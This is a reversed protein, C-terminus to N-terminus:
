TGPASRGLRNALRVLGTDRIRHRDRGESSPPHREDFTSVTQQELSAPILDGRRQERWLLRRHNRHRWHRREDRHQNRLCRRLRWGHHLERRDHRRRGNWQRGHRWRQAHDDRRVPHRWRDVYGRDRPHEHWEHRRVRGHRAPRQMGPLVRRGPDGTRARCAEQQTLEHTREGPATLSARPASGETRPLLSCGRTQQLNSAPVLPPAHRVDQRAPQEVPM